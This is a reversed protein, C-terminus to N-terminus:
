STRSFQEYTFFILCINPLAHLLYPYLGKYFGRYGEYRWVQSVCDWSGKYNGYQFQLRARVVQYPYMLIITFIKSLAACTIYDFNSMKADIPLHKFDNYVIKLREYTMFQIAGTSVGFMAPVFGSYLGRIGELKYIKQFADIMGNYYKDNSVPNKTNHGLQVSLRTKIVWLPNTIILSLVGSQAAIIMHIMPNLPIKTNEGQISDKIFHYSMFYLGWSIGSGYVSPTLGKYFGLVGENQYIKQIANKVGNYHPVPLRGSDLAFRIKILDLPYFLVTSVVGGTIGAILYEYKVINFVSLKSDKDNPQM